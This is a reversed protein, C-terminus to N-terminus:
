DHGGTLLRSLRAMPLPPRLRVVPGGWHGALAEAALYGSRVAGEMTAPWGTRVHDGALWLGPVDTRTTPRLAESGPTVSYTARRETVVKHHLLQADRVKPLFLRRMDRLVAELMADRGLEAFQRAASVVAQVYHRGGAVERRFLWQMACDVTVLHPVDLVPRDFWLHVSSIPSIGLEGLRHLTPCARWLDEGLVARTRHWPVALVVADAEVVDGGRLRVGTARGRGSLVDEVRRGLRVAVGRGTLWQRLREGYFTGLPVAPVQVTGADPHRLFGEVIVQRAYGVDIRDLSENLASVFVTEWFRRLTRDTQRHALLWDRVSTDTPARRLRAFARVGWAVRIADTWSLTPLRAFAAALHLPAPLGPTPRFRGRRTDPAQFWLTPEARLLADIGVRECLDALNTCCGMTVHQCNDVTEGTVADHWSTARGGLAATAELLTIEVGPVDHLGVATALGALGGGVIM